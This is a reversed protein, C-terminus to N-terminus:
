KVITDLVFGQDDYCCIFDGCDIECHTNPPCGLPDCDVTIQPPFCGCTSCAQDIIDLFGGPFFSFVISCHEQNGELISQLYDLFSNELPLANLASSVINFINFVELVSFIGEGVYLIQFPLLTREIIRQNDYDPFCPVKEVEPCTERTEEHILVGCSYIKFVCKPEITRCVLPSASTDEVLTFNRLNTVGLNSSTSTSTRLVQNYDPENGRVSWNINRTYCNTDEYRGTNNFSGPTVYDFNLDWNTRSDNPTISNPV